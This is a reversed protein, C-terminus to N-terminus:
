LNDVSFVEGGARTAAAQYVTLSVSFKVTRVSGDCMVFNVGGPHPSGFQQNWNTGSAPNPANLDPLPPRTQDAIRVVCEDWGANMAAENDGGDRGHQMPHLAKEGVMFTNSTGDSISQLTIPKLDGRIVVGQASGGDLPSGLNAPTGNAFRNGANGAYDCRTSSGYLQPQRRTPCFYLKLPTAHVVANSTNNFLPSQEIYPLIHYRWNWGDRNPETANWNCCTRTPGDRGGQPLGNRADHFAHFALGIQKLNNQCTARAAAERVKQVAPLLMGILVAIIAIVVLLEILTFGRQYPRQAGLM